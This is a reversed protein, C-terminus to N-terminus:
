KRVGRRHKRMLRDVKREWRWAAAREGFSAVLIVLLLIVVVVVLAGMLAFAFGDGNM